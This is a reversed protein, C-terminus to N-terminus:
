IFMHVFFAISVAFTGTVIGNKAYKVLRSWLKISSLNDIKDYVKITKSTVDDWSYMKSIQLHQKEINLYHKNLANLDHKRIQIEKIVTSVAMYLESTNPEVLTTMDSPLVEPVGGVNTSIVHLGCSAAEILSVCFSETLSCNLFVDGRILFNRVDNHQLAGVLEVKDHLNHKIIMDNIIDLKPGDGGILFQVNSHESANCVQPILEVLLDIGKRYVLRSMIIITVKGETIATGEKQDHQSAKTLATMPPLLEVAGHHPTFKLSDIANPITSIYEKNDFDIDDKKNIRLLLNEKCSKSVCIVHDVNGSLTIRLFQNVFYDFSFFDKSNYLSHETFVTKLGMARAIFICEHAMTSTSQHGHVITVKEKVLIEQIRKIYFMSCLSPLTAQQYVVTKPIYYVALKTAQHDQDKHIQQQNDTDYDDVDSVISTNSSNPSPSQTITRDDTIYCLGKNEGYSHTIVLVKHGRKQLGRALYYIHNEVGGFNPYFFDCVFCITHQKMNASNWYSRALYSATTGKKPCKYDLAKRVRCGIM